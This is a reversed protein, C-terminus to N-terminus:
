IFVLTNSIKLAEFYIEIAYDTTGGGPKTKYSIIGPTVYQVYMWVMIHLM